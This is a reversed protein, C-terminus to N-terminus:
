DDVLVEGRTPCTIMFAQTAYCEKARFAKMLGRQPNFVLAYTNDGEFFLAQTNRDTGSMFCSLSNPHTHFWGVIVAEEGTAENYDDKEKHMDQWCEPTMDLYGASGVAKKGTVVKTVDVFHVDKEADYYRKGLLIGGQENRVESSDEKEWQIFDFIERVANYRLVLKHRPDGKPANDSSRIVGDFLTEEDYAGSREQNAGYNLSHITIGM